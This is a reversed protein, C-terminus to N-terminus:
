PVKYHFVKEKWDIFYYIKYRKNMWYNTSEPSWFIWYNRLKVYDSSGNEAGAIQILKEAIPRNWDEEILKQIEM